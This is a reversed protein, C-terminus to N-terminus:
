ARSGLRDIIQNAASTGTNFSVELSSKHLGDGAFLIHAFSEEIAERAARQKFLAGPPLQVAGHEWRYVRSFLLKGSLGPFITEVDRLVESVTAEDSADLM